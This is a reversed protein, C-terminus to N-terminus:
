KSPNPAGKGTSIFKQLSNTVYITLTCHHNRGFGRLTMPPEDTPRIM